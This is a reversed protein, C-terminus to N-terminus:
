YAIANNPDIKIVQKFEDVAKQYQGLEFYKFGKDILKQVETAGAPHLIGLSVISVVFVILVVWVYRRM